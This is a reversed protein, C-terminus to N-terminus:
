ERSMEESWFWPVIRWWECLVNYFWCSIKVLLRCVGARKKQRLGNNLKLITSLPVCKWYATNLSHQMKILTYIASLLMKKHALNVTIAQSTGACAKMTIVVNITGGLTIYFCFSLGVKTTLSLIIEYSTEEVGGGGLGARKWATNWNTYSFITIMLDNITKFALPIM